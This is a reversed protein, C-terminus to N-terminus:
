PCAPAAPAPAGCLALYHGATAANIRGAALAANFSTVCATAGGAAAMQPVANLRAMWNALQVNCIAAPAGAPLALAGPFAGALNQNGNCAAPPPVNVTIHLPVAAVGGGAAPGFTLHVDPNGVTLECVKLAGTSLNRCLGTNAANGYLTLAQCTPVQALAITPALGVCLATALSVATNRARRPTDTHLM